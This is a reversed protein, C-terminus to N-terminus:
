RRGHRLQGGQAVQARQRGVGVELPDDALELRSSGAPRGWRGHRALLQDALQLLDILASSPRPARMGLSSISNTLFM